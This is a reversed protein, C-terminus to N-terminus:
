LLKSAVETWDLAREGKWMENWSKTIGFCIKREVQVSRLNSEVDELFVNGEGLMNVLEKRMACGNNVLFIAETIFPLNKKVYQSKFSINNYSGISVLVIEYKESLKEIVEYTNHNIFELNKFLEITGFIKEVEEVGKLLKCQDEFNWMNVLEWNPKVYDPHDKYISSYTKVFAETTQTLTNDIDCFLKPKFM